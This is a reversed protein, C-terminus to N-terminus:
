KRGEPQAVLPTYFEGNPQCIRIGSATVVRVNKDLKKARKLGANVIEVFSKKNM